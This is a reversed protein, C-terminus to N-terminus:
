GEKTWGHAYMCRDFFGKANAAGILGGGYYGSLRVVKECEYSDASYDQQTAGPKDWLTPGACGSAACAIIPLLFVLRPKSMKRMSSGQLFGFLRMPFIALVQFCSTFGLGIAALRGKGRDLPRYAALQGPLFPALLFPALTM